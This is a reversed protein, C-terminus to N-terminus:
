RCDFRASCGVLELVIDYETEFGESSVDECHPGSFPRVSARRDLVLCVGDLRWVIRVSVFVFGVRSSALCSLALSPLASYAEARWGPAVHRRRVLSGCESLSTAIHLM